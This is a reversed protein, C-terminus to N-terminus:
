VGREGRPERLHLRQRRTPAPEIEADARRRERADLDVALDSVPERLGPREEPRAVERGAVEAPHHADPPSPLKLAESFRRM